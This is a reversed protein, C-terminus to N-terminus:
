VKSRIIVVRIKRRRAEHQRVHERLERYTAFTAGCRLCGHLERVIVQRPKARAERTSCCSQASERTRHPRECNACYYFVREVRGDRGHVRVEHATLRVRKV